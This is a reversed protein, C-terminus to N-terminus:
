GKLDGDMPNLLRRKWGLTSSIYTREPGKERSLDREGGEAKPKRSKGRTEESEEKQRPSGVKEESTKEGEM